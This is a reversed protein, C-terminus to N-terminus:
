NGIRRIMLAEVEGGTNAGTHINTYLSGGDLKTKFSAPSTNGSALFVVPATGTSTLSTAGGPPFIIANANSSDHIHSMTVAGTLTGGLEGLYTFTTGSASLIVGFGGTPAPGGTAGSVVTWPASYFNAGAPIVQGRIEGTPHATTHINLYIKGAKIDAIQAANLGLIAGSPAAVLACPDCVTGNATGNNMVPGAVHPMGTHFHIKTINALPIDTTITYTMSGTTENLVFSGSGTTTPPGSPAPAEQGPTLTTYFASFTAADFATDQTDQAASDMTDQAASDMTDDAPAASDMTDAGPAASDMTDAGPAASDRTDAGMGTDTVMTTDPMETDTPMGTDNISTDIGPTDTSGDGVIGVDDPPILSEDFDVILSCGFATVSCAALVLFGSRAFRHPFRQIM